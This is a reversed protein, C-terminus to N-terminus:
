LSRRDRVNARDCTRENILSPQPRQRSTTPPASREGRDAPTPGDPYPHRELVDSPRFINSWRRGHIHQEVLAHVNRNLPTVRASRRRHAGTRDDASNYNERHTEITSAATNAASRPEAPDGSMAASDRNMGLIRIGPSPSGFYGISGTTAVAAFAKVLCRTAAPRCQDVIPTNRGPSQSRPRTPGRFRLAAVDGVSPCSLGYEALREHRTGSRFYRIPVLGSGCKRSHRNERLIWYKRRDSGSM